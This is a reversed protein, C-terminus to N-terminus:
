RSGGGQVTAANQALFWWNELWCLSSNPLELRVFNLSFPHKWFYPYWIMWKIPNEMIFWGNQPVGIKPFVWIQFLDLFNTGDEGKLSHSGNSRPKWVASQCASADGGHPNQRFRVPPSAPDKVKPLHLNGVLVIQHIMASLNWPDNGRFHFVISFLLAFDFVHPYAMATVKCPRWNCHYMAARRAVHRASVTSCTEKGLRFVSGELWKGGGGVLHWSKPGLDGSGTM